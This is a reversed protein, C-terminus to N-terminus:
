TGQLNAINNGFSAPEDDLLSPLFSLYYNEPRYKFEIRLCGQKLLM